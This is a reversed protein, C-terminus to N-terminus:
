RGTVSGRGGSVGPPCRGKLQKGGRARLPVKEDAEGAPVLDTEPRALPLRKEGLAGSSSSTKASSLRINPSDLWRQARWCFSSSCTACTTSRYMFAGSASPMSTSTHMGQVGHCMLMDAAALRVLQQLWSPGAEAVAPRPRRGRRRAGSPPPVCDCARL